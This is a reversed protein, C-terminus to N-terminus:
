SFNGHLVCPGCIKQPYSTCPINTPFAEWAAVQHWSLGQKETSCWDSTRGRTWTQQAQYNEMVGVVVCKDQRHQRAIRRYMDVGSRIHRGRLPFAEPTSEFPECTSRRRAILEWEFSLETVVTAPLSFSTNVFPCTSCNSYVIQNPMYQQHSYRFLFGARTTAAHKSAKHPWPKWCSFNWQNHLRCVKCYSRSAYRLM